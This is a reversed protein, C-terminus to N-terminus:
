KEFLPEMNRSKRIENVFNLYKPNEKDLISPFNEHFKKIYDFPTNGNKGASSEILYNRIKVGDENSVGFFDRNEEFSYSKILRVFNWATLGDPFNEKFIQKKEVIKELCDRLPEKVENFETM